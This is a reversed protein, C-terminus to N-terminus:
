SLRSQPPTHAPVEIWNTPTDQTACHLRLQPCKSASLQKRITSLATSPTNCDASLHALIAIQLGNKSLSVLGEAAQNNSLHGHRGAIRQKISPPRKEDEALLFEDYNAELIIAQLQSLRELIHTSLYGLDTAIGLKKQNTSSTTKLIFGCPQAADHTTAFSEVTLSGIQFQANQEFQVWRSVQPNKPALIRKTMPTAMIPIQQNQKAFINLGKIHDGHEHTLLIADLNSPSVQHLALRKNLERASFGADILLHTNNHEVLIANGNSGSGLVSFRM